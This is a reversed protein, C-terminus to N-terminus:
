ERGSGVSSDRPRQEAIFDNAQQTTADDAQLSLPMVTCVGLTLLLKQLKQM